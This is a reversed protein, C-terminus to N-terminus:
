DSANNRLRRYNEEVLRRGRAEASKRIDSAPRQSLVYDQWVESWRWVKGAKIKYKVGDVIHTTSMCCDSGDSLRIGLNALNATGAVGFVSLQM